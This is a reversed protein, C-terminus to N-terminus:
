QPPRRGGHLTVRHPRSSPLPSPRFFHPDGISSFYKSPMGAQNRRVQFLNGPLTGRQCGGPRRRYQRNYMQLALLPRPLPPAAPLSFSAQSRPVGLQRTPPPPSHASSAEWSWSIGSTIPAPHATRPRILATWSSARPYPGWAQLLICADPKSLALQASGRYYRPQQLCANFSSCIRGGGTYDGDPRRGGAGLDPGVSCGNVALSSCQGTHFIANVNVSVKSTFASTFLRCCCCCFASQFLAGHLPRILSCTDARFCEM